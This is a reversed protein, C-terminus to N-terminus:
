YSINEFNQNMGVAATPCGAESPSLRRSSHPIPPVYLFNSLRLLACRLLDVVSNCLLICFFREVFILIAVIDTSRISRTCKGASALGWSAEHQQPAQKRRCARSARRFCRLRSRVCLDCHLVHTRQLHHSPCARITGTLRTRREHGPWRRATAAKLRCAHRGRPPLRENFYILKAKCGEVPVGIVRLRALVARVVGSMEGVLKQINVSVVARSRADLEGWMHCETTM